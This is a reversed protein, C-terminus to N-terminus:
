PYPHGCSPRDLLSTIRRFCHPWWCSSCRRAGDFLSRSRRIKNGAARKDVQQGFCGNLASVRAGNSVHRRARDFLLLIRPSALARRGYQSGQYLLSIGCYAKDRPESKERKRTNARRDVEYWKSTQTDNNFIIINKKWRCVGLSRSRRWAEENPKDIVVNM